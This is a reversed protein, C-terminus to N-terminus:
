PPATQKLAPRSLPGASLASGRLLMSPLPKPPCLRELPTSCHCCFNGMPLFLQPAMQGPSAEQRNWSGEGCRHTAQGSVSVPPLKCCLSCFSVLQGKSLRPRMLMSGFGVTSNVELLYRGMLFIDGLGAGPHESVLCLRRAPQPWSQSGPPSCSGTGEWGVAM